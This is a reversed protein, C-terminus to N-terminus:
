NAHVNGKEKAIMETIQMMQAFAKADWAARSIGCGDVDPLTLISELNSLNVSGGYLVHMARATPEDYLESLVRRVTQHTTQVYAPTAAAAQGIAWRPEYLLLINETQASSVGQLAITLQRRLVMLTEGADREAATEGVCLLPAIEHRLAAYIKQNLAADSEGFLARRESHGLMVITCGLERLMAPSIEGTFAGADEWFLNQAGLEIPFEGLAQGVADLATFPPLIYARVRTPEFANLEARLVRVFERAEPRTKTM